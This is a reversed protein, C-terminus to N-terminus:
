VDHEVCRRKSDNAKAKKVTEESFWFSTSPESVASSVGEEPALAMESAFTSGDEESTLDVIVPDEGASVIDFIRNSPKTAVRKSIVPQAGSEYDSFDYVTFRALLAELVQGSFCDSILFNSTVFIKQPRIKICGGKTEARFAYRDSWVKLFYGLWKGHDPEVDSLLVNKENAYGCWWKNLQKEYIDGFKRACYDKGCRPPGNIWVGCSNTLETVSFVMVSELNRKYRLYLGPYEEQCARLDGKKALNLVNAFANSGGVSQLLEGFETFDGDKKCYLSAETPTGKATEIHSNCWNKVTSFKTRIKFQVFGQLHRRRTDPCVERGYVLYQVRDRVCAFPEVDVNYSTFCWNKSRSM